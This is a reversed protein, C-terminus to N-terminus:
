LMGSCHEARFKAGVGPPDDPAALVPQDRYPVRGGPLRAARELDVGAKDATHDEARIAPTHGGGAPVPAGLEPVKIGQLDSALDGQEMGQGSVSGCDGAYRETGITLAENRHAIILQPPDPLHGRAALNELYGA